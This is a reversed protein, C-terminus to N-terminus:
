KNTNCTCINFVVSINSSNIQDLADTIRLCIAPPHASCQLVKIVQFVMSTSWILHQQMLDVMELHHSPAPVCRQAGSHGM